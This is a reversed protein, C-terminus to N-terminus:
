LVVYCVVIILLMVSYSVM